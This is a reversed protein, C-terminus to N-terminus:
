LNKKNSSTYFIANCNSHFNYFFFFFVKKIKFNWCFISLFGAGLRLFFNMREGTLFIMSLSLFAIMGLFVNKIHIRNFFMVLIICYVQLSIKSLYSGPMHDGYPWTLRSDYKPDIVIELGLIICMLIMSVFISVFMLIRIEYKKGLWAQAAAVYLPFRIWVISEILSNHFYPSFLANLLCYLWFIFSIKFWWQKAWSWENVIYCRALFTISLLTLWFDAPDREILYIFPGILWFFIFFKNFISLKFIERLGNKCHKDIDLEKTSIIKLM